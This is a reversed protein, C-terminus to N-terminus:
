SLIRLNEPSILNTPQYRNQRPGNELNLVGRPCVTACM